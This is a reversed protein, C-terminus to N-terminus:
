AHGDGEGGLLEPQQAQTGEDLAVTTVLQIRVQEGTKKTRKAHRWTFAALHDTGEFSGVESFLGDDRTCFVGRTTTIEGFGGKADEVWETKLVKLGRTTQETAGEGNSAPPSSAPAAATPPQATEQAAADAPAVPSEQAPTSEVKAAPASESLRRPESPSPEAKIDIVDGMEEATTMGKLRDPYADRVAFTRARMMMMRDPYEQWPGKKNHLGARKVQAWSFSGTKPTKGPRNVISKAIWKEPENGEPKTEELDGGWSMVIAPLADGWVTPRGNIVAISWLAQLPSLGLEMGYQMAIVIDAPKGRYADPVLASKNIYDAVKIAQEFNEIILFGRAEPIAALAADQRTAIATSSM